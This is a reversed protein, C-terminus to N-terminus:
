CWDREAGRQQLSGWVGLLLPGSYVPARQEVPDETLRSLTTKRVPEPLEKDWSQCPALVHRRRLLHHSQTSVERVCERGKGGCVVQSLPWQPVRPAVCGGLIMLLTSERKIMGVLRSEPSRIADVYRRRRRRWAWGVGADAIGAPLKKQPRGAYM